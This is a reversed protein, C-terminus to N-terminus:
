FLQIYIIPTSVGLIVTLPRYCVFNMTTYYKLVSTWQFRSSLEMIKVTYALYNQIDEQSKLKQSTILNYFIRTNSIVWQPLTVQELKPKKPGYTVILKTNGGDSITREDERPVTNDVFDIIRLVKEGKPLQAPRLFMESARSELSSNSPPASHRPPLNPPQQPMSWAMQGEGIASPQVPNLIGDLPTRFDPQVPISTMRRLQKLNEPGCAGIAANSEDDTAALSARKEKIEKQLLAKKKRKAMREEELRLQALEEELASIDADDDEDFDRQKRPSSKSEGECFKSPIGWDHQSLPESCEACKAIHKTLEGDQSTAAM